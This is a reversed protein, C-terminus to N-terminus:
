SKGRSVEVLGFFLYGFFRLLLLLLLLLLL